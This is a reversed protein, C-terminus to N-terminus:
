RSKLLDTTLPPTKVCMREVADVNCLRGQGACSLLWSPPPKSSRQSSASSRDGVRWESEDGLLNCNFSFMAILIVPPSLLLPSSASLLVSVHTDGQATDLVTTTSCLCMDSQRIIILFPKYILWFILTMSCALFATSVSIVSISFLVTCEVIFLKVKKHSIM